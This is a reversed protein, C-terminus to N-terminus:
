RANNRITEIANEVESETMALITATESITMNKRFYVDIVDFNSWSKGSQRKKRYHIILKELRIEQAPKWNAPKKFYPYGTWGTERCERPHTVRKRKAYISM